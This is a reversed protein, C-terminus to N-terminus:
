PAFEQFGLKDNIELLQAILAIGWLFLTTGHIDPEPLGKTIIAKYYYHNARGKLFSFGGHEPWWYEKYLALRNRAFSQIEEKRYTGGTLENAYKLVYIVNFHDCAHRDNTALLALDILQKPYKFEMRNAAKLGTLIKMAGNVKQTLSPNSSFWSGTEPDQLKNMWDIAFDLLEDKNEQESRALFFLLHSFHSGSGWPKEWDQKSLYADIGEKTTPLDTPQLHTMDGLLELASISQRTEARKTLTHFFNRYDSHRIASLKERLFAKRAILPDTVHGDARQFSKLFDILANKEELELKEIMGLTYLIKTAFVSNGLGWHVSEDFLDGSLSYHFFGPMQTGQLKKLFHPVQTKLSFIWALEQEVKQANNSNQQGTEM